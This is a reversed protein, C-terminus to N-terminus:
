GREDFPRMRCAGPLVSGAGHKTGRGLPARESRVARGQCALTRGQLGLVRSLSKSRLFLRWLAEEASFAKTTGSQLGAPLPSLCLIMRGSPKQECKVAIESPPPYASALLGSMAQM